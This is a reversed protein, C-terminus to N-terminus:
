ATARRSLSLTLAFLLALIISVHLSFLPTEVLSHALYLAFAGALPAALPNSHRARLLVRAAWLFIGLFMALGIIGVETAIDLYLNHAYFPTGPSYLPRAASLYNGLGVGLMPNEEISRLAEKWLTIREISSTDSVAFSTLFRSLVPPSLFIILLISGFIAIRSRNRSFVPSKSAVAVYVIAGALLGILGGRSFTLMDSLFLIAAIWLYISRSSTRFLGLSLFGSLGFFYAAVHPDPFVATARLVTQGGLNVLLSPYERVLAAFEHGLFFPFIQDLIFHFTPGVGFIFQAAFFFIAIIAAVAAGLVAMRCLSLLRASHRESLDYWVFVLPFLNMLFILKPFALGRDDAWLVSALSLLLFSGFLGAFVPEPLRLSRRALAGVLFGAVIVAALVRAFPVEGASFLPIVFQLPLSALLLLSLFYIMAISVPRKDSTRNIASGIGSRAAM